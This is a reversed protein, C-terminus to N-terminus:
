CSTAASISRRADDQSRERRNCEQAITSLCSTLKVQLPPSKREFKVPQFCPPSDIDRFIADNAHEKFINRHTGRMHIISAHVATFMDATGGNISNKLARHFSEGRSTTTAGFNLTTQLRHTLFFDGQEHQTLVYAWASRTKPNRLFEESCAARIRDYSEKTKATRLIDASHKLREFDEEPVKQKYNANLNESLHWTCLQQKWEPYVITLADRLAACQDTLVVGTPLNGCVNALSQLGWVYEEKTEGELFCLAVTFSKNTPSMSVIHMLPMQYKNSKYTCDIFFVYGYYKALIIAMPTTWFFSQLEENQNARYRHPIGKRQMERIIADVPTRGQLAVGKIEAKLNYIEKPSVYSTRGEAAAKQTLMEVIAPATANAALASVAVAREDDTLRRHQHFCYASGTMPHNHQLNREYLKWLMNTKKSRAAYCKWLCNTRKSKVNSDKRMRGATAIYRHSDKHEGEQSCVFYVNNARSGQKRVAFGEEKAVAQIATFIADSNDYGPHDFIRQLPPPAETAPQRRILDVTNLVEPSPSTSSRESSESSSYTSM